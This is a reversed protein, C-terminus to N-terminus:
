THTTLMTAWVAKGSSSQRTGWRNALSAVIHLGTGGPGTHDIARLQVNDIRHDGDTVEITVEGDQHHLTLEIPAAGHLIANTVLESAIVCLPLSAGDLAWRAAAERVFRRASSPGHIDCPLVLVTPVASAKTLRADGPRDTEFNPPGCQASYCWPEVWEPRASV